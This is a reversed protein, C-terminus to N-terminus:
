PAVGALWETWRAIYGMGLREDIRSHDVVLVTAAEGDASLEFRVLSPEEGPRSWDLELVRGPEVERVRAEVRGGEPLQIAFPRGPELEVRDARGLWRALAEPDTLAQWVQGPPADYRRTLRVSCHRTM